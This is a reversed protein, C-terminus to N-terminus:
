LNVICNQPDGRYQPLRFVDLVAECGDVLEGGSIKTGMKMNRAFSCPRISAVAVQWHQSVTNSEKGWNQRLAPPDGDSIWAYIPLDFDVSVGSSCASSNEEPRWLVKKKCEFFSSISPIVANQPGRVKGWTVSSVNHVFSCEGVHIFEMKFVSSRNGINSLTWM